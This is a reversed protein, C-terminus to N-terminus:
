ITKAGDLYVGKKLLKYKVVFVLRYLCIFTESIGAMCALSYINLSNTIILVSLGFFHVFSAAVVSLNAVKTYGLAALLPYGMMTSPIKILIIIAFIQLIKYAPEMEAGYFIIIINKGYLFVLVCLIANFIM